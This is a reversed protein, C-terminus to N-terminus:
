DDGEELDLKDLDFQEDFVREPAKLLAIAVKLGVVLFVLIVITEIM